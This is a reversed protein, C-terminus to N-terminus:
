YDDLSTPHRLNRTTLERYIIDLTGQHEKKILSEYDAGNEISLILDALSTSIINNYWCYPEEEFFYASFVPLAPDSLDIYWQCLDEQIPVWYPMFFNQDIEELGAIHNLWGEQRAIRQEITMAEGLHIPGSRDVELNSLQNIGSHVIRFPVSWTSLFSKIPLNM